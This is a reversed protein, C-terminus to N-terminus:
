LSTLTVAFLYKRDGYIDNYGLKVTNRFLLSMFVGLQNKVQNSQNEGDFFSRRSVDVFSSNFM